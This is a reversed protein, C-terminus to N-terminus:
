AGSQVKSIVHKLVAKCRQCSGLLNAMQQWHGKETMSLGFLIGAPQLGPWQDAHRWICALLM